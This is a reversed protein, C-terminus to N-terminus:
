PGVVLMRVTHDGYLLINTEKKFLLQSEIAAESDSSTSSQALVVFVSHMLNPYSNLNSTLASSWSGPLSVEMVPFLEPFFVKSGSPSHSWGCYALYSCETYSWSAIIYWMLALAQQLNLCFMRELVSKRLSRTICLEEGALVPRQIWQCPLSNKTRKLISVNQSCSWFWEAAVANRGTNGCAKATYTLHRHCLKWCISKM